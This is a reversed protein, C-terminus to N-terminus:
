AMVKKLADMAQQVDTEIHFMSQLRTMLLIQHIKESLGCIAVDGGATRSRTLVSILFTLGISQLYQMASLDVIFFKAGSSILSEVEAIIKKNEEPLLLDYIKLVHFNEINQYEYTM